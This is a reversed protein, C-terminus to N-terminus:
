FQEQSNSRDSLPIDIANNSRIRDLGVTDFEDLDPESKVVGMM